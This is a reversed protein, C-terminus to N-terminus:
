HPAVDPTGGLGEHGDIGDVGHDLGDGVGGLMGAGANAGLDGGLGSKLPDSGFQV